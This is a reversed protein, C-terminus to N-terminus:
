KGVVECGRNSNVFQVKYAHWDLEKFDRKQTKDYHSAIYQNAKKVDILDFLFGDNELYFYGSQVDAKYKVNSHWQNKNEIFTYGGKHKQGFCFASILLFAILLRFM